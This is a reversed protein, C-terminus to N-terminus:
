FRVLLELYGFAAHNSVSYLAASASGGAAYGWYGTVTVRPTVAVDASADVLTALHRSSVPQGAYGFTTGQYAGGGQYWLDNATALRLAHIDTRIAVSRSPRLMLEGFSDANNMMNFFPLRAYIRPTPLMPFFTGHASDNPDHDGSGFDVGGRIWPSLAIRPQWGAEAAFAGARHTLQGWAGVQAAGWVLVDFTGRGRNIARMYNGGFTTVNVRDHDAQRAATSRNDSKVVGDRGDYYSAGFVRWQGIDAADGFQRTIAGYALEVNLEGWGDVQFVGETPRAVLLTVNTAPREFGYAAGDFSRQVHTFGFNAVLRSSVRDRQLAALTSDSPARETGDIFEMRGLKLSQGEIGGVDKFRVFAQKAFVMAAHTERGNAVFYSAGQGAPGSGTPQNPLAFLLPASLELQWDHAPRTQAAAVRALIGPYTYTGNPSGGFWDWSEVRARVSGSVVVGGIQVPPPTQAELRVPTALACVVIALVPILRVM